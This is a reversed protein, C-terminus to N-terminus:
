FPDDPKDMRTVVVTLGIILLAAACSLAGAIFWM